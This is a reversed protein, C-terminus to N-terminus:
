VVSKRDEVFQNDTWYWAERKQYTGSKEFTDKNPTWETRSSIKLAPTVTEAIGFLRSWKVPWKLIDSIILASEHVSPGLDKAMFDFMKKALQASEHCGFSCPMHSVFRIGMYRLLTQQWMEGPRDKMFGTTNNWQEWTSDVQGKAWTDAYHQQCCAPYGLLTGLTADDPKMNAQYDEPRIYLCRYLAKDGPRVSEVRSGYSSGTDRLQELPLCLLGHSRAWNVQSILEETKVPLWAAKRVGAAVSAREAYIFDQSAQQFLPHWFQREAVSAWSWRTWDPLKPTLPGYEFPINCATMTTVM